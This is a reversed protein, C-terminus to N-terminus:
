VSSSVPFSLRFTSGKGEQSAVRINGQYSETIQKALSLGLGFGHIKKTRAKDARYFRDFIYPMDEQAIGIGQDQFKLVVEQPTKEGTVTIQTKEPSYKIANDLLITFLEQLENEQGLLRLDSAIKNVITIHKKKLSGTLSKQSKKLIETLLLPKKETTNERKALRLLRESLNELDLVEELNEKLISRCNNQLKKDMLNVELSSRLATIPTKLEHAADTIFREQQRHVKRIPELTIGALVFAIGGFGVIMFANIFILRALINQKVIQLDEPSIRQFVLADDDPTKSVNIFYHAEREQVRIELQGYERDLTLSTQMYFLGSFTLCLLVIILVYWATLRWRASEFLAEKM